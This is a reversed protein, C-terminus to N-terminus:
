RRAYQKRHAPPLATASSIGLAFICGLLAGTVISVSLRSRVLMKEINEAGGPVYVDKAMKGEVVVTVPGTVGSFPSRSRFDNGDVFLRDRNSRAMSEDLSSWLRGPPPDFRFRLDKDSPEITFATGIREKTAGDSSLESRLESIAVPRDNDISFGGGFYGSITASIVWGPAFLYAAARARATPGLGKVVERISKFMDLLEV